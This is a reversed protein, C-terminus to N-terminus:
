NPYSIFVFWFSCRHLLSWEIEVFPLFGLCMAAKVMFSLKITYLHLKYKIKGVRYM